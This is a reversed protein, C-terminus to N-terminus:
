LLFLAAVGTAVALVSFNDDLRDSLLETAASAAAVAGSAAAIGWPGLSSRLTLVVASSVLAVGFFALTGLVSKSKWLKRKGFRMGVISAAPDAFALVLLGTEVAAMPALICMATLTLCYSSASNMRGMERPRITQRFVPLSVLRRNVAPLFARTVEAAIVLASLVGLVVMTSTWDLVLEYLAVSVVGMAVHFVNRSYNVPKLHPLSLKLSRSALHARRMARVMDEYGWSLRDCWERATAKRSSEALDSALTCLNTAMGELSRSLSEHRLTANKRASAMTRGMVEWHRVAAVRAAAVREALERGSRRASEVWAPESWAAKRDHLRLLFAHLDLTLRALSESLQAAELAAEM